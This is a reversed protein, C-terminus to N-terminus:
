GDGFLKDLQDVLWAAAVENLGMDALLAQTLETLKEGNIHHKKMISALDTNTISTQTPPQLTKVYRQVDNRTWKRWIKNVKEQKRSHETSSTVREFDDLAALDQVADYSEWTAESEPYGKWLVLYELQSQKGLRKGIIKDVEYEPQQEEDELHIVHQEVPVSGPVYKKFQSIHFVPHIKWSAPLELKYSVPSIVHTIKFPGTYKNSLKRTTGAPLKLNRTSLWVEEGEKFAFERRNLNAYHMQRERAKEMHTKAEEIDHQLHQMLEHLTENKVTELPINTPFVPHEGYNLYYPTFATSAHVSSNVAIEASTL